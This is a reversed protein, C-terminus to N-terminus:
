ADDAAISMMEAKIIQSSEIEFIAMFHALEILDESEITEVFYTFNTVVKEEAELLRSFQATMNLFTKGMELTIKKFGERDLKIQGEHSHWEIIANENFYKDILDLNKYFDSELFEAILEKNKSM